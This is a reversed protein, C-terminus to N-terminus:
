HLQDAEPDYEEDSDSDLINLNPTQEEPVNPKAQFFNGQTKDERL